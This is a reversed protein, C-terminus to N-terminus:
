IKDKLTRIELLRDDINQKKRGWDDSARQMMDFFSFM